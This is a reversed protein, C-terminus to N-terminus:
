HPLRRRAGASLPPFCNHSDSDTSPNEIEVRPMISVDHLRWHLDLLRAEAEEVSEPSVLQERPVVHITGTLFRGEERLRLRSERVWPLADVTEQVERILPDSAKDDITRPMEDSLNRMAAWTHKLGDHLVDLAILIAAAADAWWWGMGIGLIGVTAALGTMWDAKNMLADAYLTKDHLTRAPGIKLRGFIVPLVVSYVLAAIMVWGFWMTVGFLEVSGITPHEQKFLAMSSDVILFIGVGGLAVASMLYAISMMRIYGLPFNRNPKRGEIWSGVLFAFPPVFSLMDEIWATKMAQSNGLSFYIATVITALVVIWISEM